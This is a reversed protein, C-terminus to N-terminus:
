KIIVLDFELKNPKEQNSIYDLAQNLTSPKNEWWHCLAYSSTANKHLTDLFLQLDFEPRWISMETIIVTGKQLNGFFELGGQIVKTEYGQVDMKVANTRMADHKDLVDDLRVSLAECAGSESVWTNGYNNPDRELLVRERIDGLATQMILSEEKQCNRTLVKFNDSEPEFAVVDYGANQVVKSHWGINAGIDVFLGGGKMADLIIRSIHPEWSGTDHIEKSVVLDKKCSHTHFSFNVGNFSVKTKSLNEDSNLLIERIEEITLNSNHYTNFGEVDAERCLVSIYLDKIENSRSCINNIDQKKSILNQNIQDANM